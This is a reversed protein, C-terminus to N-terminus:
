LKWEKKKSVTERLVPSLEVKIRVEGQSIVIRLADSQEHADQVKTAPIKQQILTSIRSLAARINILATDRDDMPIYLLDIDVSLRPLARYFM